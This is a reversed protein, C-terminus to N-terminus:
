LQAAASWVHFYHLAYFAGYWCACVVIWIGPIRSLLCGLSLPLVILLSTTAVISAIGYIACNSTFNFAGITPPTYFDTPLTIFCFPFYYDPAFILQYGAFGFSAIVVLIFSVRLLM